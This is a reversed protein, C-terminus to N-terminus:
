DFSKDKQEKETYLRKRWSKETHLTWEKKVRLREWLIPKGLRKVRRAKYLLFFGYSVGPGEQKERAPYCSRGVASRCQEQDDELFHGTFIQRCKGEGEELIFSNATQSETQCWHIFSLNRM